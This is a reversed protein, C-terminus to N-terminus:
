RQKRKTRQRKMRYLWAAIVALIIIGLGVWLWALKAFLSSGPLSNSGSNYSTTNESLNGSPQTNNQSSNAPASNKELPIYGSVSYVYYVAEASGINGANDKFTCTASFEGTYATSPYEEYSTASSNIGSMADSPSCSCSVLDGRLQSTPSCSFSATPPTNDVGLLLSATATHNYTDNAIASVAYMGDASNNTYYCPSSSCNEVNTGNVYILISSINSLSEFASVNVTLNGMNWSDNFSSNVFSVIPPQSDITVLSSSYPLASYTVNGGTAIATVNAGLTLNNSASPSITFNITYNTNSTITAGMNILIPSSTFTSNSYVNSGSYVSVNTINGISASGIINILINALTNGTTSNNSVNFWLISTETGNGATKPALSGSSALVLHMFPTTMVVFFLVLFFKGGRKM